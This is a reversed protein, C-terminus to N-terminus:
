PSSPPWDRLLHIQPFDSKVASVLPEDATVGAVGAADTLAVFLADYVAVRYRVSLRIAEALLQRSPVVELPMALFDALLEDVEAATILGRIFRVWIANAVEALAMDLILLRFGSQNASIVIAQADATDSEPLVWKAAVSSDIAVDAM